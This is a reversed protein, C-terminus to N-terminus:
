DEQPLLMWGRDGREAAEPRVSADPPLHVHLHDIVRALAPLCSERGASEFEDVLHQAIGLLQEVANTGNRTLGIEERRHDTPNLSRRLLGKSELNGLLRSTRPGRACLSTSLDKVCSPRSIYIVSLCYLEDPSLSVSAALSKAVQHCRLLLTLFVRGSEM